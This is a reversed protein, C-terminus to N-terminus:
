STIKGIATLKRRNWYSISNKISKLKPGFNSKIMEKLDVNFHIGLLKFQTEGWSLKWKTKISRSSYKMCGIWILKTKDFNVKM